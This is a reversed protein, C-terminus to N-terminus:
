YRNRSAVFEAAVDLLALAFRVPWCRKSAEHQRRAQERAEAERELRARREAERQQYKARADDIRILDNMTPGRTMRLPRM